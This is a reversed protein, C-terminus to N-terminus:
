LGQLREDEDWPWGHPLCCRNFFDELLERMTQVPHSLFVVFVESRGCSWSSSVVECAGGGGSVCSQRVDAGGARWDCVVWCEDQPVRVALLCSLPSGTKPRQFHFSDNSLLRSREHPITLRPTADYNRGTCMDTAIPLGTASPTRHCDGCAGLLFVAPTPTAESIASKWSTLLKQNKNKETM